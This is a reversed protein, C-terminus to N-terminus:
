ARPPPTVIDHTALKLAFEPAAALPNADDCEMNMVVAHPAVIAADFAVQFAMGPEDVGSFLSAGLTLVSRAKFNGHCTKCNTRM